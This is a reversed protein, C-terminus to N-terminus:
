AILTIGDQSLRAGKYLAQWYYSWPLAWGDALCTWEPGPQYARLFNSVQQHVSQSDFIEIIDHLPGMSLALQVAGEGQSHNDLSKNLYKGTPNKVYVFDCHTRIFELYAKVVSLDMEAFSDINIGLDFGESALSPLEQAPLFRVKSFSSPDLVARLYERSLHLCNELDVITYQAVSSASLFTHCTRGYGAGIELIRAADLSLRSEVFDLEHVAQLYDMCVAEGAVTVTIPQGIHRNNVKKLRRWNVESTNSALVYLLTKLYRMGNTQPDWLAIRFNVRNSKFDCLDRLAVESLATQNIQKWLDSQAYQSEIM